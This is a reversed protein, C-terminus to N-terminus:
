CVGGAKCYYAAGCLVCDYGTMCDGDPNATTCRVGDDGLTCRGSFSNCQNKCEANRTCAAGDDQKDICTGSIGSCVYPSKCDRDSGCVTGVGGTSCVGASCKGSLCDSNFDCPYDNELPGCWSKTPLCTMAGSMDSGCDRDRLCYEGRQRLVQCTRGNCKSGTACVADSTCACGIARGTAVLCDQCKGVTAMGTVNCVLTRTDEDYDNCQSNESCTCGLDGGGDGPVCLAQVLTGTPGLESPAGCGAGLFVALLGAGLAGCGGLLRQCSFRSLVDTRRM